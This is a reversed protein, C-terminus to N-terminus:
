KKTYGCAAMFRDPDFKPNDDQLADALRIALNYIIKSDNSDISDSSYRAFVGEILEYDIKTM